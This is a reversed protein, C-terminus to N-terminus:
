RASGVVSSAVVVCVSLVIGIVASADAGGPSGSAGGSWRGFLSWRKEKNNPTEASGKPPYKRKWIPERKDPPPPAKARRSNAGIPPDRKRMPHNTLDSRNINRQYALTNPRAHTKARQYQQNMARERVVPASKAVATYVPTLKSKAFDIHGTMVTERNDPGAFFDKVTVDSPYVFTPADKSAANPDDGPGFEELPNRLVVNQLIRSACLEGFTSGRLVTRLGELLQQSNSTEANPDGSVNGIQKMSASLYEAHLSLLDGAFGRTKSTYPDNGDFEEYSPVTAYWLYMNRLDVVDGRSEGLSNDLRPTEVFAAVDTMKPFLAKATRRFMTEAVYGTLAADFRAMVSATGTSSVPFQYAEAFGGPGLPTQRSTKFLAEYKAFKPEKRSSFIFDPYDPYNSYDIYYRNESAIRSGMPAPRTKKHKDGMRSWLFAAAQFTVLNDPKPPPMIGVRILCERAADHHEKDCEYCGVWARVLLELSKNRRDNLFDALDTGSPPKSAPPSLRVIDFDDQSAVYNKVNEIAGMQQLGQQVSAVIDDYIRSAGDNNWPSLNYLQIARTHGDSDATASDLIGTIIDATNRCAEIIENQPSEFFAKARANARYEPTGQEFNGFYTKNLAANADKYRRYREVSRVFDKHGDLREQILRLVEKIETGETPVRIKLIKWRNKIDLPLAARCGFCNQAKVTEWESDNEINDYWTTACGVCINCGPNTCLQCHADGNDRLNFDYCIRCTMFECLPETRPTEECHSEILNKLTEKAQDTDLAKTFKWLRDTVITQQSTDLRGFSDNIAQVEIGADPNALFNEIAKAIDEPTAFLKDVIARADAASLQDSNSTKSALHDRVQLFLADNYRAPLLELEAENGPQPEIFGIQRLEDVSVGVLVGTRVAYNLSVAMKCLTVCLLVAFRKNIFANDSEVETIYVYHLAGREEVSRDVGETDGTIESATPSSSNPPALVTPASLPSDPLFDPDSVDSESPASDSWESLSDSEWGDSESTYPYTEGSDSRPLQELGSNPPAGEVSVAEYTRLSFFITSVIEYRTEIKLQISFKM